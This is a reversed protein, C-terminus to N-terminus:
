MCAFKRRMGAETMIPLLSEKMFVPIGAKDAEACICDIWEKKPQHKKSGPGTMAGIIILKVPSPKLINDLFIDGLLPEISLFCNRYLPLKRANRIDSMDTVTTGWWYNRRDLTKQFLPDETYRKPNKTLFLYRHHPASECAEFVAEIWSDPVSDHFLDGMSQIFVTRPRKWKALKGLVEFHTHPESFSHCKECNTMKRTAM